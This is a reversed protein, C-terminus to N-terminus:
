PLDRADERDDDRDIARRESRRTTRRMKPREADDPQTREVGVEPVPPGEPSTCHPDDPACAFRVHLHDRHQPFHRVLGRPATPGHPYQFMRELADPPTGRRKAWLYLMRQVDYDLLIWEVGGPESTTRWLAELLAFTAGFHLNDRHAEVFREPYGEPRTRYYLGLDVDRGSQHSFHGLLRGGLESSLDGVVLPHVRPHQERVEAIVERLHAVTTKTGYSARANRIVYGEGPQLREGGFLAGARPAGVSQGVATTEVRPPERPTAPPRADDVARETATEPPRPEPAPAPATVCTTREPLRELVQLAVWATVVASASALLCTSITLVFLVRDRHNARSQGDLMTRVTVSPRVDVLARSRGSGVARVVVARALDPRARGM